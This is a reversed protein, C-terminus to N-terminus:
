KTIRKRIKRTKSFLNYLNGYNKWSKNNKLKFDKKNSNITLTEPKYVQFKVLDVKQKVIENLFHKVHKFSNNHNGSIECIVFISKNSLNFLKLTDRM